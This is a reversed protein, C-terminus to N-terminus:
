PRDTGRGIRRLSRDPLTVAVLLAATGALFWALHHLGATTVGHRFFAANASSAVMAGLYAFTRLLGASSGMRGADAQHFLANQNALNNLGQPVGAVLTVALLLWVPSGAHVLLLLLCAAAQLLGGTLLKGRVEPRRGTLATVAMATLFMPTQVLGAQSASLGRGEELWQSFGYLFAYTVTFALVQRAFTALVAPNGRLLRLDIFPEPTRLERVTFAVSTAAALAPLYWHAARPETVFLLAATLSVAFLAMGATDLRPRGGTGTGAQAALPLASRKPLRRAGLVLCAAALPVNVTFLTRWGGLGILLGGLAPGVVAVTQNAFSLATLVGGPSKRGTRVAESRTLHMAAPYAACTGLGLLVRAVVLVHLSTAVTGLAGAVGVLAAGCLYLLRPGYADVLRGAVPQGVATALYLASLLWATGAPSAGLARGIPVLAVSIMVSNVPNLVSGLLMPAILRRDFGEPPGNRAGRPARVARVPHRTM